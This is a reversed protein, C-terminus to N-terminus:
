KVCDIVIAVSSERHFHYSADALMDDAVNRNRPKVCVKYMSETPTTQATRLHRSPGNSWKTKMPDRDSRRPVLHLIINSRSWTVFCGHLPSHDLSISMIRSIVHLDAAVFVGAAYAAATAVVNSCCDFRERLLLQAVILDRM